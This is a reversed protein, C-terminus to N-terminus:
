KHDPQSHIPLFFFLIALGNLDCMSLHPYCHLPSLPTPSHPTDLHGLVALSPALHRSDTMIRSGVVEEKLILMEIWTGLERLCIFMYVLIPLLSAPKFDTDLVSVLEREDLSSAMDTAIVVLNGPGNTVQEGRPRVWVGGQKAETGNVEIGDLIGELVGLSQPPCVAGGVGVPWGGGAM